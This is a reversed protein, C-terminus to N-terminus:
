DVACSFFFNRWGVCLLHIQKETRWETRRYPNLSPYPTFSHKHSYAIKKEADISPISRNNVIKRSACFTRLIKSFRNHNYPQLLDQYQQSVMKIILSNCPISCNNALKKKCLFTEISKLFLLSQLSTSRYLVLFLYTTISLKSRILFMNPSAPQKELILLSLLCQEPFWLTESTNANQSSKRYKDKLLIGIQVEFQPVARYLLFICFLFICLLVSKPRIFYVCRSASWLLNVWYSKKQLFTNENQSSNGVM